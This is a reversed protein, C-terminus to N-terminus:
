KQAMQACHRIRVFRQMCIQVIQVAGLVKFGNKMLVVGNKRKQCAGQELKPYSRSAEKDSAIWPALYAGRFAEADGPPCTQTLMDARSRKKGIKEM